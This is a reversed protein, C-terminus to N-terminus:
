WRVGNQLGVSRVGVWIMSSAIWTIRAEDVIPNSQIEM